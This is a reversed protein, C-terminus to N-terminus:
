ALLFFLSVPVLAQGVYILWLARKYRRTGEAKYEWVRYFVLPQPPWQRM